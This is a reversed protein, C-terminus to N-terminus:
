CAILFVQFQYTRVRGNYGLTTALALFDSDIHQILKQLRLCNYPAYGRMEVAYKITIFTVVYENEFLVVDTSIKSKNEFRMADLSVNLNETKTTYHIYLVGENGSCVFVVILGYAHRLMENRTIKASLYLLVLFM